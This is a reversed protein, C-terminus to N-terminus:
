IIRFKIYKSKYNIPIKISVMYITNYIYYVYTYDEYFVLFTYIYLLENQTKTMNLFYEFVKNRKPTPAQPPNSIKSTGTIWVIFSESIFLM